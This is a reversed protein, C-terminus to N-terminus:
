DMLSQMATLVKKLIIQVKRCKESLQNTLVTSDSAEQEIEIILDSAEFVKFLQLTPKLQHAVDRIGLINSEALNTELIQLLRPANQLFTQIITKVFAEDGGALAQIESLSFLHQDSKGDHNVVQHAEKLGLVEAIIDLLVEKKYPKPVHANMGLAMYHRTDDATANASLAIIPISSELEVRIKKTATLGDMVPMQVDMLIIDFSSSQQLVDLLEQGNKVIEHSINEKSLITTLLLTNLENDEAVLVRVHELVSSTQASEVVSSGAKVKPLTLEFSFESGEGRVSKVRIDGGMKRVIGRSISLGLGTGGFKRSIGADEQVFTKFISEINQPDIGIGSDSIRFEIHQQDKLDELLDARLEVSGKETFKIANNVLNLLVQNLKTPDSQLSSSIKADLACKFEIGKKKAQAKFGLELQEFVSFLNFPIEELEIHGSEIKSFDLIDNIIVLLNQASTKIANVFTTQEESLESDSILDTMGVIVNMPTRIEHSMNALFLEKAKVSSLAVEKATYLDNEMLKRETIDVHIGMSGIVENKENFIPAGSIIIYIVSGDKKRIRREYVNSIGERRKLNLEDSYELDEELAFLEPANKGLLEEETYGTMKCFAPYVKTINEHLDVEILGFELNEIIKSYKDETKLINQQHILYETIDTYKWTQGAYAGHEFVPIFDRELTRGDKLRLREGTVIQKDRLCKYIGSLFGEPDEFLEKARESAESCDMGKYQDPHDPLGFLDCFLQNVFVIKHDQNESLVASNLSALLTQLRTSTDILQEHYSNLYKSLEDMETKVERDRMFQSADYPSTDASGFDSDVIGFKL